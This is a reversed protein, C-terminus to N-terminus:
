DSELRKGIFNKENSPDEVFMSLILRFLYPVDRSTTEQCGSVHIMSDLAKWLMAEDCSSNVENFVHEISTIIIPSLVRRSTCPLPNLSMPSTSLMEIHEKHEM